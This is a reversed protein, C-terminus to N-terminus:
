GGLKHLIKEAIHRSVFFIVGCIILFLTNQGLDVSGPDIFGVVTNILLGISAIGSACAIIGAIGTHILAKTDFSKAPEPKTGQTTEADDDDDGAFVPQSPAAVSPPPSPRPTPAAEAVVAAEVKVASGCHPCTKWESQLEKGCHPCVTKQAAEGRLVQALMDVVGNAVNPALYYDDQLKQAALQKYAALDNANAIGSAVGAEVVQLLLRRENLHGGKAYDALFAKCKAANFLADRGQEAILHQIIATFEAKM